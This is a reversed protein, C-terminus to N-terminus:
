ILPYNTSRLGLGSMKEVNSQVQSGFYDFNDQKKSSYKPDLNAIKDELTHM